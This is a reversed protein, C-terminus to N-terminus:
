WTQSNGKSICSWAPLQESAIIVLSPNTDVSMMLNWSSPFCKLTSILAMYIKELVNEKLFVLFFRYNELGLQSKTTDGSIGLSKLWRMCLAQLVQGVEGALKIEMQQFGRPAFICQWQQHPFIFALPKFLSVKKTSLGLNAVKRSGEGTGVQNYVRLIQFCGYSIFLLQWHWPFTAGRTELSDISRCEWRRKWVLVLLLNTVLQRKHATGSVLQMWQGSWHSLCWSVSASGASSHLLTYHILFSASSLHFLCWLTISSSVLSSIPHLFDCWLM